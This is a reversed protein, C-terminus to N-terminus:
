KQHGVASGNDGLVDELLTQIVRKIPAPSKSISPRQKARRFSHTTEESSAHGCATGCPQDSTMPASSDADAETGHPTVQYRTEDLAPTPDLTAITGQPQILAEFREHRRDNKPADKGEMGDIYSTNHQRKKTQRNAQRSHQVTEM